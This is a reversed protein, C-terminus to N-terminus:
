DYPGRKEDPLGNGELTRITKTLYKELFVFTGNFRPELTLFKLINGISGGSTM